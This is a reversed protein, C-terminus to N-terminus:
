RHVEVQIPIAVEPKDEFCTFTITGDGAIAKGINSWVDMQDLATDLVDSYVPMIHPCDTEQIGELTITQTYPAVDGVWEIGISASTRFYKSDVYLKTAADTDEEPTSLGTIKNNNMIISTQIVTQGDEDKAFLEEIKENMENELTEIDSSLDETTQNVQGKWTEINKALTQFTTDVEGQFTELDNSVKKIADGTAKGDAFQEATSLRKDSIPLNALSTYDIKKPGNKTSIGTIYIEAM